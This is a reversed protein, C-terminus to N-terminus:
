RWGMQEFKRAREQPQPKLRRSNYLRALREPPFGAYYLAHLYIWQSFIAVPRRGIFRRSSSKVSPEAICVTPGCCELRRSFDLDEMLAIPRIGGLALYCSRRVFIASDGYYLGKRRFWAYFGTLWIAFADDGDFAIRFNGGVISLDRLSNRIAM